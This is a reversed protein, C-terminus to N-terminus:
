VPANEAARGRGAEKADYLAADAVQLITTYDGGEEPFRAIGISIGISVVHGEVEFPEEIARLIRDAVAPAAMGRPLFVAFEDGGVRAAVEGARITALLRAAVEQLVLDGAHHGLTDNVPKFRDLDMFLLAAQTGPRDFADEMSRRLAERNPLGTLADTLSREEHHAAEDRLRRQDLLMLRWTWGLVGFSLLFATPLALTLQGFVVDQEEVSTKTLARRGDIASDLLEQMADLAPGAVRDDRLETPGLDLTALVGAVYRANLVELTSLTDADEGDVVRHGDEVELRVQLISEDIRDRAAESPARRYAAEAFAEDSVARQLDLYTTLIARSTTVREQAAHVRIMGVVTAVALGALVAAVVVTAVVSVRAARM